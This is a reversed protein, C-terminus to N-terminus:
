QSRPPSYASAEAGDLAASAARRPRKSQALIWATLGLLAIGGANVATQLLLGHGGEVLIVFGALSLIISLCFVPLSHQGCNIVLKAWTRSLWDARPSVLSTAIYSLAAIHVVRWASLYQKSLETRFDPVLRADSLAQLKTWPAAVVLAMLVYAVAIWFLWSSRPHVPRRRAPQAAFVAGLTFLLQWAFPNFIWGYTDPYSPLNFQLLGAVAWLAASVGLALMTDIRMLWIVAPLWLLLLMYLPLINMYGPQYLLILARGIAGAPDVDFPILNSTSSTFQTRSCARPWRWAQWASSSCWCTRWMCIASACLSRPSGTGWGQEFARAYALFAAYGALLVFIEAADAFGFNTLTAKAFVNGPIHDIFILILAVGRFFDVRLDRDSVPPHAALSWGRVPHMM